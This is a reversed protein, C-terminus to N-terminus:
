IEWGFLGAVGWGVEFYTVTTLGGMGVMCIFSLASDCVGGLQDWRVLRYRLDGRDRHWDCLM